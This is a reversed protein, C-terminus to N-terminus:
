RGRLSLGDIADYQLRLDGGGILDIYNSKNANLACLIHASENVSMTLDMNFGSLPPRTVSMETSDAFNTFKVLDDLQNDTTIPSDRLIYTMDTSGLIDLKGRLSLNEVPGQMRGYFNVYAKGFAESRSNEKADIILFNDARMRIDAYMNDFNSFDVYGSTTLPKDNHSYM